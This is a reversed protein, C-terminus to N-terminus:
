HSATGCWMDLVVADLKDLSNISVIRAPQAAADGAVAQCRQALAAMAAARPQLQPTRPNLNLPELRAVPRAFRQQLKVVVPLHIHSAAWREPDDSPATLTVRLRQVRVCM